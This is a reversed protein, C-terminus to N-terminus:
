RKGNNAYNGDVVTFFLNSEELSIDVNAYINKRERTYSAHFIERKRM